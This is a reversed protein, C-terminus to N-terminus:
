VTETKSIIPPGDLGTPTSRSEVIIFPHIRWGVPFLLLEWHVTVWFKFSTHLNYAKHKATGCLYAIDMHVKM